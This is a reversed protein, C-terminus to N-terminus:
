IPNAGPYALGTSVVLSLTFIATLVIGLAADLEIIGLQRRPRQEEEEEISEWYYVYSSMTAGLLALAGAVYDYTFQFTPVITHYLVDGWNPRALFGAAIYAFFVLMVLQLIRLIAHYSGFMMIAGSIFALPILLKRTRRLRGPVMM